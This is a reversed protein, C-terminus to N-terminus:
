KIQQIIVMEWVCNAANNHFSAGLFNDKTTDVTSWQLAQEGTGGGSVDYWNLLGCLVNANSGITARISIIFEAMTPNNTPGFPAFGTSFINADMTNGNAGLRINLPSNNIDDAMLTMRFTSGVELTNAPIKFTPTFYTEVGSALNVSNTTSVTAPFILGSPIDNATLARFDPYGTNPSDPSALVLNSAVNNLVSM